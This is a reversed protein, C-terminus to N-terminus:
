PQGAWEFNVRLPSIFLIGVCFSCMTKGDMTGQWISTIVPCIETVCLAHPCYPHTENYM